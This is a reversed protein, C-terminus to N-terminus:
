GEHTKGICVSALNVTRVQQFPDIGLHLPAGVDDTEEGIGLGNDSEDAGHHVFLVVLPRQLRSVHRKFSKLGQASILRCPERGHDVSWPGLGKLIM